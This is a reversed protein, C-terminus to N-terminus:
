EGYPSFCIVVHFNNKIRGIFYNWVNRDSDIQDPCGEIFIPILDAILTEYTVCYFLNAIESATFINKIHELLNEDEVENDTFIFDTAKNLLGIRGYLEPL